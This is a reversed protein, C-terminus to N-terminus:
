SGAGVRRAEGEIAERRRVKRTVERAKALEPEAADHEAESEVNPLDPSQFHQLAKIVDTRAEPHSRLAQLINTRLAHFEPMVLLNNTVSVSGTRLDGLLKATVELNRLIHGSIAAAGKYDEIKEAFDMLGYLRARVAVLHQLVGESETVRLNELEMPTMRGRTMLQAHLEPPMHNRGHRYVADQHVRYRKGLVRIPVKNALGLEISARDVHDCITCRSGRLGM